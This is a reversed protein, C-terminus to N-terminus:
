GQLGKLGVSSGQRRAEKFEGKPPKKVGRKKRSYEERQQSSNRASTCEKWERNKDQGGRVALYRKLPIGGERPQPKWQGPPAREKKMRSSDDARGGWDRRITEGRCRFPGRKVGGRDENRPFKEEDWMTLNRASPEQMDKKAKEMPLVLERKRKRM